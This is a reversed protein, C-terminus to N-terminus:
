HLKYGSDRHSRRVRRYPAQLVSLMQEARPGEKRVQRFKGVVKARHLIREHQLDTRSASSIVFETVSDDGM